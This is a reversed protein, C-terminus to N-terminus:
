LGFVLVALLGSVDGFCFNQFVIGVTLSIVVVDANLGMRAKGAAVDSGVAVVLLVGQPAALNGSVIQAGLTAMVPFHPEGKAGSVAATTVANAVRLGSDIM